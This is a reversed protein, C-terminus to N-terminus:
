RKQYKKSTRKPDLVKKNAVSFISEFNSVRSLIRNRNPVGERNMLQFHKESFVNYLLQRLVAM